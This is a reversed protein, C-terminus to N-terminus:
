ARVLWSGFFLYQNVFRVLHIFQRCLVDGILGYEDLGAVNHLSAILIPHDFVIEDKRWV